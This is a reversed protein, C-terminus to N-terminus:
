KTAMQNALATADASEREVLSEAPKLLQELLAMPMSVLDMLSMNTQEPLRSKIVRRMLTVVAGDTYPDETAHMKVIEMPDDPTGSPYIGYTLDYAERMVLKAQLPNLDCVTLITQGVANDNDFMEIKTDNARTGFRM